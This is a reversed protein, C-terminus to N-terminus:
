LTRVGRWVPVENFDWYKVRTLLLSQPAMIGGPLSGNNIRVSDYFGPSKELAEGHTAGTRWVEKISEDSVLVLNSFDGNQLEMTSYSLIGAHSPIEQNLRDGIDGFHEPNANLRRQGFFGVVHFNNIETLRRPRPILYRHFRSDSEHQIVPELTNHLSQRTKLFVCIQELMYVLTARDSLVLDPHTFPREPLTDTHKLLQIDIIEMLKQRFDM